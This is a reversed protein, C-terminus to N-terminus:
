RLKSECMRILIYRSYQKVFLYFLMWCYKSRYSHTFFTQHRFEFKEQQVVIEISQCYRQVFPSQWYITYHFKIASRHSYWKLKFCYFLFFYLFRFKNYWIQQYNSIL